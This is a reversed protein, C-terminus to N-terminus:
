NASNCKGALVVMQSGLFDELTGLTLRNLLQYRRGSILQHTSIVTFGGDALMSHCSKRTFFRLHTRDMIGADTYSWNGRLTLDAIVRWHRVNPVSCIFRGEPKLWGHVRKVIRCPDKLHELIDGCIVFDFEASYPLEMEEIDGQHVHAYHHAAENAASSFLEVGVLSAAKGTELLKRGVVGAGCGLDLIRHPGPPVLNQISPRERNYYVDRDSTHAQNLM